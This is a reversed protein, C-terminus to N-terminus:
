VVLAVHMKSQMPMSPKQEPPTLVLEQHYWHAALMSNQPILEQHGVPMSYNKMPVMDVSQIGAMKKSHFYQLVQKMTLQMMVLVGMMMQVIKMLEQMSNQAFSSSVPSALQSALLMM